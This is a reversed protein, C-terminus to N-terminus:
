LSRASAPIPATPAEPKKAPKLRSVGFLVLVLGAVQYLSIAESLILWSALMTLVPGLNGVAATHTPGLRQIALAVWYIPLVTSFLAMLAANLWVTGPLQLLPAVDAVLLYHALVMLSSATGCLGALRMSNMRKLMMGTGSYYLAYTVASAFVWLSGVLVANGGGSASIDHVFAIGLGLYCLGMAALTRLTPRERQVIAQIVLVLTPYTFLILRELGASIYQLGYFDFLSALYYGFLGLLAVRLGDGASLPAGGQGRSAWVLWAFLPLSLAMRLALLSIADVPGAAYALKVFIAKFSFGLAALVAYLSGNALARQLPAPLRTM